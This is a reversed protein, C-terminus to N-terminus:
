TKCFNSVIHAIISLLIGFWFTIIGLIFIKNQLKNNLIKELKSLEWNKNINKKNKDLLTLQIDNKVTNGYSTYAVTRGIYAIDKTEKINPWENIIIPFAKNQKALIIRNNSKLTNIGTYGIIYDPYIINMIWDIDKAKDCFWGSITILIGISFITNTLIKM